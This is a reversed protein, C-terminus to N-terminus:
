ESRNSRDRVSYRNYPVRDWQGHHPQWTSSDLGLRGASRSTDLWFGRCISSRRHRLGLPAQLRRDVPPRHRTSFRPPKGPRRLRIEPGSAIDVPGRADWSGLRGRHLEPGLVFLLGYHIPRNFGNRTSPTSTSAPPESNRLRVVPFRVWSRRTVISSQIKATRWGRNAEAVLAQDRSPARGLPRSLCHLGSQPYKSASPGHRRIPTTPTSELSASMVLGLRPYSRRGATSTPM